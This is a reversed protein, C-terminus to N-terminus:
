ERDGHRWHHDDDWTPLLFHNVAWDAVREGQERAAVDAFRFHIGLYVRADVVDKAADSFRNYVRTKRVVQPAVSTVNFTLKDRGFYLALSRTMAATVANAGSSYDPYNPNNILPQWNPDGATRPNGDKEGEQIATLPRWVVYFRKSDWATIVADATAINALAFMRATDGTRLGYRTAIGRMARNWQTFFNESYFYAIDTQETTRTTSNLSGIAKVENYDRTYRESTLAPPPEARFRTPGTLTFPDMQALWPTAMPSFPPPMPPAPPTSLFSHTPRWLGPETGGVFPAPLPDPNLRRLPLILAAVKKGVELGPDSALGKEAIYNFYAPDLTGAAQGPYLGVLVGHAAAAVAAARSGKAGKVEAHYPEFRKEIAQVADHIAVHVLATDLQGIPGPRGVTVAAMTVENWDVVANACVPGAAAALGCLIVNQCLARVARRASLKEVVSQM